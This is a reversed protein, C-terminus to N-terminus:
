IHAAPASVGSRRRIRWLFSDDGRDIREHVELVAFRDHVALAGEFLGNWADFVADPMHDVGRALRWSSRRVWTSGGETWVECPDDEAASIAAMFRGFAEPGEGEIGLGAKTQSWFQAGIQTLAIRGLYGGEAPGFMEVLRPLGTRVYEIAYNRNAKALREPSWEQEPLRPAKAPDFPPMLEGPRFVLREEPALDRDYELFYGSLGHQGDMTQATCVFGLRPNGLSPGNQTYWGELMGRSVETPVGCIAAGAYIWRPPVFRVWAKRDSERVFEVPVGGVGNSLYHYAAALVAPPMESIGLKALSSKFKLHHQYRYVRKIWEGADERGRRSAVTLILGTFAAHYLEATAAWASRQPDGSAAANTNDTM